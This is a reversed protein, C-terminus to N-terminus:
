KYQKRMLEATAYGFLKGSPLSDDQEVYYDYENTGYGEADKREVGFATCNLGIASATDRAEQNTKFPGAITKITM